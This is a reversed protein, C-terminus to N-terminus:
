QSPPDEQHLCELLLDHLVAEVLSHYNSISDQFHFPEKKPAYLTGYVLDDGLITLIFESNKIRLEPPHGAEVDGVHFISIDFNWVTNTGLGPRCILSNTTIISDITPSGHCDSHFSGRNQSALGNLLLEFKRIAYDYVHIHTQLFEQQRKYNHRRADEASDEAAIRDRETQFHMRDRRDKYDREWASIDPLADTNTVTPWQTNAMATLLPLNPPKNTALAFLIDQERNLNSDLQLQLNKITSELRNAHESAKLDELAQSHCSWISLGFFTLTLVLKTLKQIKAHFIHEVVNDITFYAVLLATSLVAPSFLGLVRPPFASFYNKM